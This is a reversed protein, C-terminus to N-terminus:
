TDGDGENYLLQKVLEDLQPVTDYKKLDSPYIWRYEEHEWDIHVLEPHDVHFLFPYVVWKYRKGEYMDSFEISEGKRVLRLENMGIGVEESIEKIATDYPEELPEVFGAVGGWFGRYTGVLNSRKLILIKGNNELICTVVQPM